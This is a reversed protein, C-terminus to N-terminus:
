PSILFILADTWTQCTSYAIAMVRAYTISGLKLPEEAEKRVLTKTKAGLPLM